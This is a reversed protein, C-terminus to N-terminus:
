LFRTLAEVLQIHIGSVEIYLFHELNYRNIKAPYSAYLLYELEKESLSSLDIGQDKTSADMKKNETNM